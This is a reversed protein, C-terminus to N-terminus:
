RGAEELRFRRVQYVMLPIVAIMLVVVVAAATGANGFEFLQKYFTNAVVETDFAGNTMVYVIDFIKMVLILITTFVVLVTAWIQPVVIQFFIKIEGAGDIRAAEITEDPVNKIAASLLVMAFGAQLWIMIVMLLLDNIAWQSQQLWVIPDFGLAVVIANLLGIQDDGRLNADYIFGWITAAGVFSIAMPLFIISKAASEARPKLRDALVAVLLGVVVSMTPVILIWLLNNLLASQFDADTLLERYNQLGVWATSDDNAFSYIITQVAPYVLFIGVVAVAPGVFVFPKVRAEWPGPLREVVANLLFYLLTVGGVGLAIAILANLVKIM